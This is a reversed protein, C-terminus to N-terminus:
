RRRGTISGTTNMRKGCGVAQAAAQRAAQGTAQQQLLTRHAFAMVVEATKLLVQVALQPLLLSPAHLANSHMVM